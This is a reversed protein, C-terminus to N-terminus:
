FVNFSNQKIYVDLISVEFVLYNILVLNFINLYMQPFMMKCIYDKERCDLAWSTFVFMFTLYNFLYILLFSKEQGMRIKMSLSHIDILEILDQQYHWSDTVGLYHHTFNTLSYHAMQTIFSIILACFGLCFTEMKPLNREM